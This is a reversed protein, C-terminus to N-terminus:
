FQIYQLSMRAARRALRRNDEKIHECVSMIANAIDRSAVYGYIIEHEKITNRSVISTYKLAAMYQDVMKMLSISMFIFVPNHTAGALLTHFEHVKDKLEVTSSTEALSRTEAVNEELKKLDSKTARQVATAIIATELGLRAELLDSLSIRAMRILDTFSQGLNDPTTERVFCGGNIGRRVELLGTSVLGRVAERIVLRSVGLQLGMERQSPLREGVKVRGETIARVLVGAAEDVRSGGKIRSLIVM